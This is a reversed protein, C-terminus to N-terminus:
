GSNKSDTIYEDPIRIAFTGTNRIAFTRTAFTGSLVFTVSLLHGSLFHKAVEPLMTNFAM